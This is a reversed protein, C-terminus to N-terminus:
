KFVFHTHDSDGKIGIQHPLPFRNERRGFEGVFCDGEEAIEDFTDTDREGRVEVGGVEGASEEVSEFNVGWIGFSLFELVHYEREDEGGKSVGASSAFMESEAERGNLVNHGRAANAGDHFKAEGRVRFDAAEDIVSEGFLSMPTGKEVRIEFEEVEEWEPVLLSGQKVGRSGSGALGKEEEECFSDFGCSGLLVLGEEALRVEVEGEGGLNWRPPSTRVREDGVGKSSVTVHEESVSKEWGVKEVTAVREAVFDAGEAVGVAGVGRGM